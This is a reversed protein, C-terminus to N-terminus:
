VTMKTEEVEQEKVQALIMAMFEDAEEQKGKSQLIGVLNQATTLAEAHDASGFHTVKRQWCDRLLEEAQDSQGQQFLTVALNNMAGLTQASDNGTSENNKQLQHYLTTYLGSAHQWQGMKENIDAAFNIFNLTFEHSEGRAEQLQKLCVDLYTQAMLLSDTCTDAYIQMLLNLNATALDHLPGLSQLLLPINRHLIATAQDYIKLQHCSYALKTSAPISEHDDLPCLTIAESLLPQASELQDQQVYEDILALIADFLAENTSAPDSRLQELQQYAASPTSYMSMPNLM